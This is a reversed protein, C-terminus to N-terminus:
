LSFLRKLSEEDSSFMKEEESFQSFNVLLNYDGYAEIKGESVQGIVEGKKVIKTSAKESLNIDYYVASFSKAPRDRGLAYIIEASYVSVGPYVANEGNKEFNFTGTNSLDGAFPSFIPTNEPLSFGIFVLKNDKYIPKGEKCYKEELVLCSGPKVEKKFLSTPGLSSIHGKKSTKRFYIAALVLNLIIFFGLLLLLFKPLGRM